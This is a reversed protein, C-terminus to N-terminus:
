KAALNTTKAIGRRVARRAHMLYLAIAGVVIAGGLLMMPTMAEGLALWVWVPGLVTELLLLLSVNAAATYRSAFSLAMFSTPLIICGTVAIAWVNGDPMQAPGTVSVGAAGACLAGLGILLPIPLQPHARLVVFNMALMAAVGLGAFAGFVVAGATAVAGSGGLVAIGIGTTVVAITIWTARATREGLLVWAFLAAFIPTTAVGFLVMAVPAGAIGLAFLTSNFFQCAVIALGAGTGAAALDARRRRSVLAWIMLLSAGMFIGRWGMMQPGSMESLRLFMADPTLTLAGFAALALGFAPHGRM